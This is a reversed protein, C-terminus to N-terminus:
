SLYPPYVLSALLSLIFLHAYLCSIDVFKMRPYQLFPFVFSPNSFPSLRTFHNYKCIVALKIGLWVTEQKKQLRFLRWKDKFYKELIHNWSSLCFIHISLKKEKIKEIFIAEVFQFAVAWYYTFWVEWFNRKQKTKIKKQLHLKGSNHSGCISNCATYLVHTSSVARCLPM